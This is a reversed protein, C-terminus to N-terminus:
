VQSLKPGKKKQKTKPKQIEEKLPEKTIKRYPNFYKPDPDVLELEQSLTDLLKLHIKDFMGSQRCFYICWEIMIKRENQRDYLEHSIDPLKLMLDGFLATNELIKSVSNRVTENGPFSDDPLQGWKTLNTRAGELVKFIEDMTSKVFKYQNVAPMQLLSNIAEKQLGRQHTFLKQYIFVNNNLGSGEKKTESSNLTSIEGSFSSNLSSYNTSTDPKRYNDSDNAEILITLLPLINLYLYCIRM